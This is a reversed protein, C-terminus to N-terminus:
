LFMQAWQKAAQGVVKSNPESQIKKTGPWTLITSLVRNVIQQHANPLVSCSFFDWINGEPTKSM